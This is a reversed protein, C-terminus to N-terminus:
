KKKTAKELRSKKRAATKRHILNKKAAKDIVSYANDIEERVFEVGTTIKKRLNKVTDKLKKKFFSNIVRNKESKKAAKKASKTIPM